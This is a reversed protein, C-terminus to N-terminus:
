AVSSPKQGSIMAVTGQFQAEPLDRYCYSRRVLRYLEALSREGDAVLAVLQQALVDLCNQPVHLSEVRGALMRVLADSALEFRESERELADRLDSM